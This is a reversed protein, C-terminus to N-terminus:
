PLSPSRILQLESTPNARSYTEYRVGRRGLLVQGVPGPTLMYPRPSAWDVVDVFSPAIAIRHAVRGVLALSRADFVGVEEELAGEDSPLVCVLQLARPVPACPGYRVAALSGVQALTAGDHVPTGIFLKGDLTFTSRHSTGTSPQTWQSAFTLGTPGVDLRTFNNRSGGNWAFVGSGDETFSMGLANFYYGIFSPIVQMDRILRVEGNPSGYEAITEVLVVQNDTPSVVIRSPYGGSYLALRGTEQLSPLAFRLVRHSQKLGVYLSSGDASIALSSPDEDFQLLTSISGDAPDISLLKARTESDGIQAVLYRNYRSDYVQDVHSPQLRIELAPEM